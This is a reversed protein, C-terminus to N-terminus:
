HNQAPTLPITLWYFLTWTSCSVTRRSKKQTGSALPAATSTHWMTTGSTGFHGMHCHISLYLTECLLAYAGCPGGFHAVRCSQLPCLTGNGRVPAGCQVRFHEMIASDSRIFHRVEWHWASSTDWSSVLSRRVSLTFHGV